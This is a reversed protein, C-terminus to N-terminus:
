KGRRTDPNEAVTESTKPSIRMSQMIQRAIPRWARHQSYPCNFVGMMVNHNLEIFFMINFLADGLTPSKFEFFGVPKEEITEVGEELFLYSPNLRKLLDKMAEKVAPIEQDKITQSILNMTINISGMDDTKIIQPRDSSPYKLRAFEDPMDIFNTPIQIKLTDDFFDLEKFEYYKDMVTIGEYINQSQIKEQEEVQNIVYRIQEDAYETM